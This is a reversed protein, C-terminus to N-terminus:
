IAVRGGVALVVGDDDSATSIESREGCAIDLSEEVLSDDAGVLLEDSATITEARLGLRAPFDVGELALLM